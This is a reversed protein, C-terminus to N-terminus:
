NGYAQLLAPAPVVVRLLLWLVYGKLVWPQEFVPKMRKCLWQPHNSRPNSDLQQQQLFLVAM